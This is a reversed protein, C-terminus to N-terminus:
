IGNRLAEALPIFGTIDVTQVLKLTAIKYAFDSVIASASHTGGQSSPVPCAPPPAAPASTLRNDLNCSFNDACHYFNKCDSM